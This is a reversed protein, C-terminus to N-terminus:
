FNKNIFTPEDPKEAWTGSYGESCSCDQKEM